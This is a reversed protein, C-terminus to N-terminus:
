VLDRSGDPAARRGSQTVDAEGFELPPHGLQVGRLVGALEQEGLGGEQHGCASGASSASSVAPMALSGYRLGITM